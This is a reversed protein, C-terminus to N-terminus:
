PVKPATNAVIKTLADVAAQLSAVAAPLDTNAVKDLRVSQSDQVARIRDVDARLDPLQQNVLSDMRVAHTRLTAATSELAAVADAIQADTWAMTGDGPTEPQTDVPWRGPGAKLAAAVDRRFMYMLTSGPDPKRRTHERHGIVHHAGWNHFDCVAASSLVATVWQDRTMPQGGDFRVENGYYKYNGNTDDVGPSIEATTWAYAGSKVKALTASSGMGAHNAREAAILWLDGDMDTSWNCLPAPVDPRGDIALFHLYSDSQADSGTHHIVVGQADSISGPGYGRTAWGDYLKLKGPPLWLKFQNLMQVPTMAVAM